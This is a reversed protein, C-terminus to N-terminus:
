IFSPDLIGKRHLIVVLIDLISSPDIFLPKIEKFLPTFWDGVEGIVAVHPRNLLLENSGYTVTVAARGAPHNKLAYDWSLQDWM